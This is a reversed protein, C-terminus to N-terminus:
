KKAENRNKNEIEKITSEIINKCANLFLKANDYAHSTEEKSIDEIELGYFKEHREARLEDLASCLKQELLGKEAYHKQVYLVLCKHSKEIIGDKYLLSRAAHFMSSYAFIISAENIGKEMAQKCKQLKNESVKLSTQSKQIDHRERRLLRKEFCESLTIM